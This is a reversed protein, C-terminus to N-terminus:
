YKMLFEGLDGGDFVELCVKEEYLVFLWDKVFVGICVVM